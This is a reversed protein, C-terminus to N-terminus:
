EAAVRQSADTAAADRALRGAWPSQPKLALREAALAEATARM